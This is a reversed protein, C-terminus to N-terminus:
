VLGEMGEGGGGAAVLHEVEGLFKQLDLHSTGSDVSSGSTVSSGSKGSGGSGIRCKQGDVGM